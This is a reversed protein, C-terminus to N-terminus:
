RPAGGWAAVAGSRSARRRLRQRLLDDPLPRLGLVKRAERLEEDTAARRGQDDVALASLPPGGARKAAHGRSRKVLSTDLVLYAGRRAPPRPALNRELRRLSSSPDLAKPRDRFLRDRLRRAAESEQPSLAEAAATAAADLEEGRAVVDDMSSSVAETRRYAPAEDAPLDYDADFFQAAYLLAVVEENVVSTVGLRPADAALMARLEGVTLGPHANAGIDTTALAGVNDAAGGGDQRMGADSVDDVVALSTELEGELEREVRAIEDLRRARGLAVPHLAPRGGDPATVAEALPPANREEDHGMDFVANDSGSSEAALAAPSTRAFSTARHEFEWFRDVASAWDEDVGRQARNLDRTHRRLLRKVFAPSKLQPRRMSRAGQVLQDTAAAEGPVPDWQADFAHAFADLSAQVTAMDERAEHPLAAHRETRARGLEELLVIAAVHDRPLQLM